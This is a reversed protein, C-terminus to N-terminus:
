EGEEPAFCFMVGAAAFKTVGAATASGAKEKKKQTSPEPAPGSPRSHWRSGVSTGAVAYSVKM